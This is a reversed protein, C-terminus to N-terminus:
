GSISSGISFTVGQKISSSYEPNYEEVILTVLGFILVTRIFHLYEFKRRTLLYIVFMAITAEIVEHIYRKIYYIINKEQKMEM